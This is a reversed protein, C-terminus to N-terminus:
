VITVKREVGEPRLRCELVGSKMTMAVREYVTGETETKASGHRRDITLDVAEDIGVGASVQPEVVTEDKRNRRSGTFPSKYTRSAARTRKAPYPAPEGSGLVPALIMWHSFRVGWQYKGDLGYGGGVHEGVLLAVYGSDQWGSPQAKTSTYDLRYNREGNEIYNLLLKDEATRDEEPIATIRGTEEDTRTALGLPRIYYDALDNCIMPKLTIMDLTKRSGAPRHRIQIPVVLGRLTLEKANIVIDEEADHYPSRHSVVEICSEIERQMCLPANISAWSWSPFTTESSHQVKDRSASYLRYWCLQGAMDREWLGSLCRRGLIHSSPSGFASQYIGDMRNILGTLAPLKDSEWTLNRLSFNEVIRAWVDGFDRRKSALDELVNISVLSRREKVQPGQCECLLASKCEWVLERDTFYLIRSSLMREQLTWGRTALPGAKVNPNTTNSDDLSVMMSCTADSRRACISFSKGEPGPITLGVNNGLSHRSFLGSSATSAHDAAITLTASEYISCM